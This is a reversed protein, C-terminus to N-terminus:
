VRRIQKLYKGYRTRWDCLNINEPQSATHIMLGNGVYMGIHDVVGDGSRDFCILDGLQEDGLNISTGAKSQNSSTRPLTIGNEKFIVQMFGSCDMGKVSEGGFVYPINMDMYKLASVLLNTPVYNPTPRAELEVVRATLTGVQTELDTIYTNLAELNSNM